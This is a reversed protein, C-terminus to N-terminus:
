SKGAERDCFDDVCVGRDCGPCGPQERRVAVRKGPNALKAERLKSFYERVLDADRQFRIQDHRGTTDRHTPLHDSQNRPNSGREPQPIAVRLRNSLHPLHAHGSPHTADAGTSLGTSLKPNTCFPFTRM